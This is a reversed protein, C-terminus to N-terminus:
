QNQEEDAQMEAEHAARVRARIASVADDDLKAQTAIANMMAAFYESDREAREARENAMELQEALAEMQEVWSPFQRRVREAPYPKAEPDGIKKRHEAYEREVERPNNLKGQRAPPLSTRWADIDDWRPLLRVACARDDKSLFQFGTKRLFVSVARIYLPTDTQGGSKKKAHEAGIACAVAIHRWGTWTLKPQRSASHIAMAMRIAAIEQANLRMDMTLVADAAPLNGRPPRVSDPYILPTKKRTVNAKGTAPRDKIPV